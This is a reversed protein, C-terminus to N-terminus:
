GLHNGFTAKYASPSVSLYKRFNHRMTIANDYGARLTIQDLTLESTELLSKAVELKRQQLWELPTLRYHKKFYRDFTHRTMNAKQAIDDISLEASLHLVAWDLAQSVGSRTQPVPKEVFQSQGGSRHAPLVLRRAVANAIHYGYDRRIVEIGLDIGAASGASCGIIGDYEYLVDDKYSIHPFRQQFEQAYRWHTTAIRNDLLGLAALLFAGSCFSIIRGGRQYHKMIESTLLASPPPGYVPYAPVVLLECSDLQSVRRYSFRTHCLGDFDASDLSLVDTSYWQDIEPRPLAFLETACGLEFLSLQGCVLIIVKM